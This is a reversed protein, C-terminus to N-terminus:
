EMCVHSKARLTIRGPLILLDHEREAEVLLYQGPQGRGPTLSPSGPKLTQFSVRLDPPVTEDFGLLVAISRRVASEDARADVAASRVSRDLAHELEASHHAAVGFDVVGCLLTMILTMGITCEIMANGRRSLPLRGQDGSRASRLSGREASM